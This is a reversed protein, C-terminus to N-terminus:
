FLVPFWIPIGYPDIKAGLCLHQWAYAIKSNCGPVRAMSMLTLFLPPNHPLPSPREVVVLLVVVLVVPVLKLLSSFRDPKGAIVRSRLWALRDFATVIFHGASFRLVRLRFGEVRLWSARIM